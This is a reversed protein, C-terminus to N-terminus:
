LQYRSLKNYLTARTIGLRKAAESKNGRVEKLVKEIVTKEEEEQDLQRAERREHLPSSNTMYAQIKETQFFEKPLDSVKVHSESTLAFLRELVNLLERINGPWHYRFFLQMVDKDITKQTIGYTECLISLQGSILLPIDKKRERLPPIHLPLVHLRYYLDKRFEGKRVMQELNKNTAAIIRFDVPIPEMGGIREVEKEQIVRLIKAQTSLPMDGIEDLFITGKHALEFKGQKGGKQAGTFAGETYGFLESELLNDPIAACNVSVFRGNRMIGTDHIARAFQEKGVGSEGSILVPAKSLAAKRAIKKTQSIAPSEGLIEEFSMRKRAIPKNSQHSSDGKQQELAGKKTMIQQIESVGEYILMGVAGVVQGNKWIPMRHVVMEQGQLRHIQNREPIGTTLVIPIRTNEIVQEVPRGIAEEKSMGVYRSYTENFLKIIGTEDVIALGEYATDFCLQYWENTEQSKEHQQVVTQYISLLEKQTIVGKLVKTEECVVYLPCHNLEKISFGENITLFNVSGILGIPEDWDMGGEIAALCDKINVVRIMKGDEVLPLEVWEGDALLRFADKLKHKTTLMQLSVDMWEKVLGM